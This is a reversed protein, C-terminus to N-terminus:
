RIRVQFSKDCRPCQVTHKGKKFPLRLVAKCFRCRRYRKTKRDKIRSKTLKFWSSIPRFLKLFIENERRRRAHKRSFVRYFTLIFILWLLVTLIWTKVFFGTILLAFYLALLGFYLQDTGYRGSMFRMLKQRFNGM